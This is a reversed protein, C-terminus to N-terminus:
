IYAFPLANIYIFFLLPCLISGQSVGRTLPKLNSQTNHIVTYGHRYHLYCRILQLPLGRIGYRQLKGILIDHDATDFAKKLDLFVSCTVHKNEIGTIFDEYIQHLATERSLNERFGFQHKYFFSNNKFYQYLQDRLCKELLKSFLCLISIPRYNNLSQKSGSKFVPVVEATKFVTPFSGQKISANFLKSLISILFPGALKIYKIPIGKIGTRKSCDLGLLHHAIWEDTVPKLFFSQLARSISSSPYCDYQNSANPIDAALSNAISTFHDNIAKSIKAPSNTIRNTTFIQTPSSSSKRKFKVIDNITRWLLGSDHSNKGVLKEYYNKM